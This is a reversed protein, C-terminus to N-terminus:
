KGLLCDVHIEELEVVACWLSDAVDGDFEVLVILAEEVVEDGVDDWADKWDEVGVLVAGCPRREDKWSKFGIFAVEVATQRDRRLVEFCSVIDAVFSDVVIDHAVAVGSNGLQAGRQVAVFLM